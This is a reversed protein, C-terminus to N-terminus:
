TRYESPSVGKVRKFARRFSQVSNYGVNEAITAVLEGAQLLECAKEIRIKELYDTFNVNMEEKFMASLYGESLKCHESVMGLGMGSNAYNAKIFCLIDEMKEHRKKNKQSVFYACIDKSLITLYKFYNEKDAKKEMVISSLQIMRDENGDIEYVYNTLIDCICNNLKIFQKRSINRRVFNENEIMKLVDVVSRYDGGKLSNVLYEEMSYPLYYTDDKSLVNSYLCIVEEKVNNTIASYAEEASKWFSLLDKCPTGVGWCADVHYEERLWAVVNELANFIREENEAEIIYLTVLTNRKYSWMPMTCVSELYDKTLIQLNRAEEVTKGDISDVDIQPFFRISAAYYGGEQLELNARKAMYQMEAKSLFNGKLLNHFFTNRLAVIDNKNEQVIKAVTDNLEELDYGILQDNYGKLVRIMQNIPRGSKMSFFMALAVGCTMALLITIWMFTRLLNLKAMADQLPIVLIYNRGDDEESEVCFVLNENLKYNGSATKLQKQIKTDCELKDESILVQNDQTAFFSLKSYKEFFRVQNIIEDRDIKIFVTGIRSSNNISQFCPFVYLLDGQEQRYIYPFVEGGKCLKAWEEESINWKELYMAEFVEPKYISSDYIIKDLRPLHVFVKGDWENCRYAIDTYEKLLRKIVDYYDTQATSTMQGALKLSDLSTLAMGHFYAESFIDEIRDVDQELLYNSEDILNEEVISFAKNFCITCCGFVIILIILYTILFRFIADNNIENFHKKM